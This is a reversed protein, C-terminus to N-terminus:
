FTDSWAAQIRMPKNLWPTLLKAVAVIVPSLRNSSQGCPPCSVVTDVDNLAGLRLSIRWLEAGEAIPSDEVALYDTELLEDWSKELLGNSALRMPDMGSQPQPIFPLFTTASMGRGVINQGEYGFQNQLVAQIRSVAEARELLSMQWRSKKRDENSFSDGAEAPRQLTEPFRVVLEM